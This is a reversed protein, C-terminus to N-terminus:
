RPISNELGDGGSPPMVVPLVGKVRLVDDDLQLQPLQILAFDDKGTSVPARHEAVLHQQPWGWPLCPDPAAVGTLRAM